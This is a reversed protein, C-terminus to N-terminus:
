LSKSPQGIIVNERKQTKKLLFTLIYRRATEIAVCGYFVVIVSVVLHPLFWPSNWFWQTKLVTRYLFGNLYPNTHIIYIAFTFTALYNIKTSQINLKSFFMFLAVSSVLNYITNYALNFEMFTVTTSLLYVGLFLWKSNQDQVHTKIYAGIIYLMIFNLVGYGGDNYSVGPMLTPFVSFSIINVVALQQFQKKTLHNMMTNLFPSLLFLVIYSGVYWNSGYFPIASYALGQLTFGHQMLSIATYFAMGYFVAVGVLNTAKNVVIYTKGSMFYGSVLVFCNVAIISMSELFLMAHHNITGEPVNSFGGGMDGNFYHLVLVMLISVIKLLEFNSYRNGM